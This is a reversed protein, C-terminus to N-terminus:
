THNAEMFMDKLVWVIMQWQSLPFNTDDILIIIINNVNHGAMELVISLLM